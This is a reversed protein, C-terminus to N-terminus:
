QEKALENLEGPELEILLDRLANEEAMLESEISEDVRVGNFWKSPKGNEDFGVSVRQDGLILRTAVANGERAKQAIESYKITRRM